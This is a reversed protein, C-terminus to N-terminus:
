DCYAIPEGHWGNAKREWYIRQLRATVPGPAGDGLVRGEIRTVPMLGGATSSLFVEDATALGAVPVVREVVPLGLEQCLEIVTRRTMGDFVGEAPTMLRGQWVLFLNFGPGETLNGEGDTLVETDCGADFAEFQGLTMDLWHFNKIRPDLCDPPIRRRTSVHLNLGQKQQAPDSIWVFPVAFAYFRPKCVRPDRSGGPPVGRTCTMQVYADRLGSRRICEILVARIEDRALPPAMRLAAMNREFRDLYDDLRFIYGKWVHTVDYTADSRTFGRDMLPIRAEAVPVFQGEVFAAGQAFPNGAAVEGQPQRDATNM